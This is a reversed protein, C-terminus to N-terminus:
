SVPHVVFSHTKFHGFNLPVVGKFSKVNAKAGHAILLLTVQVHGMEDACHLPMYADDVQAGHNLLLKVIM